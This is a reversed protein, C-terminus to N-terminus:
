LGIEFEQGGFLSADEADINYIEAVTHEIVASEGYEGDGSDVSRRVVVMCHYVLGPTLGDVIATWNYEALPGDFVETVVPTDNDPDPDVGEEVYLEWTDAENRDVGLPYRSFVKIEGSVVDIVDLIEPDTIPGLEEEGLDDIEIITPYQNHSLLDYRNRKRTVAYLKITTGSGPTSPTWSIPFSAGSAVPQDSADFDPETDEGVYLEFQELTTDAVRYSQQYTKTHTAM